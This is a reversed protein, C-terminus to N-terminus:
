PRIYAYGQKQKKMLEIVGGSVYGISKLMDDKTLKQAKMTVECAVVKVGAAVADNVRNGATSEAKLMDIGPGYVVLEVDVKDKGLADQVNKINNLALTWKKPDGDSVQFVVKEKASIKAAAKPQIADAAYAPVPVALSLFVAVAASLVAARRRRTDVHHAHLNLQM